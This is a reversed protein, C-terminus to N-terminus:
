DVALGSPNAPAVIDPGGPPVYGEYVTIDDYWHGHPTASEDVPAFTITTVAPGGLTRNFDTVTYIEQDDIWLTTVGDTSGITSPVKIYTRMERWNTGMGDVGGVNWGYFKWRNHPCDYSGDGNNTCFDTANIAVTGVAETPVLTAATSGYAITGYLDNSGYFSILAGLYDTSNPGNYPRISKCGGSSWTLPWVDYKEYWVITIEQNDAPNIGWSDGGSCNGSSCNMKVCVGTDSYCGNAVGTVIERSGSATPGSTQLDTVLIDGTAASAFFPLILFAAAVFFLAAFILTEGKTKIAIKM